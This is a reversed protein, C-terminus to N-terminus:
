VAQALNAGTHAAVIDTKRDLAQMADLHPVLLTMGVLGNEFNSISLNM